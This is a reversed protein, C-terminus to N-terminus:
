KAPAAEYTVNVLSLTAYPSGSYWVSPQVSSSSSQPEGCVKQFGNTRVTIIRGNGGLKLDGNGKVLACYRYTGSPVNRHNFDTSALGSNGGADRLLWVTTGAKGNVDATTLAAPGFGASKYENAIWLTKAPTAAFSTVTFYVGGSLAFIAMILLAQSKKTNLKLRSILSQRKKNSSVKRSTNPKTNKAM